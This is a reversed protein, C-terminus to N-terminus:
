VVREKPLPLTSLHYTEHNILLNSPHLSHFLFDSLTQPMATYLQSPDKKQSHAHTHLAHTLLKMREKKNM